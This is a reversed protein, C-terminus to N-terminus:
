EPYVANLAETTFFAEPDAGLIRVMADRLSDRNSAEALAQEWGSLYTRTFAFADGDGSAPGEHGAIVRGAGVAELTDLSSRWAAFAEETTTEAVYLGLGAYAVDSAVLADFLPMHIPTIVGTDGAMPGLVEFREGEFMLDGDLASPLVWTDGAAFGLNGKLADFMGQGMQGLIEVVGPHATFTAAPFRASLVAIGMLHDPHIHTIFVTELRKGTAEIQDALRTADAQTLQADVVLLSEDGVVMTSHVFAGVPSATYTDIGGHGAAQGMAPLLATAAGAKLVTRRDLLLM